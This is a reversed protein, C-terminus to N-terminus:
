ITQAVELWDAWNSPPRTGADRFIRMNYWVISKNAAKFFAGYLTGNVSGLQRWLPAYNQDVQSGAVDEISKLVGQGALDALLGPQPLIAVDPPSGGQLRTGLVAAIDDGTSIYTVRIGSQREFAALVQGFAKQEGGTWVAAVEIGPGPTRSGCAAAAMALLGFLALLAQLGTGRGAARNVIAALSV